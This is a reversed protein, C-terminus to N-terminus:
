VSSRSGCRCKRKRKDEDEFLYLQCEIKSYNNWETNTIIRSILQLDVLYVIYEYQDDSRVTRDFVIGCYNRNMIDPDNYCKYLLQSDM